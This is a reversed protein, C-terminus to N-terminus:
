LHEQLLEGQSHGTPPYKEPIFKLYTIAAIVKSKKLFFAMAIYKKTLVNSLEPDAAPTAATLEEQDATAGDLSNPRTPNKTLFVEFTV